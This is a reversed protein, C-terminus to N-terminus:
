IRALEANIAQEVFLFSQELKEFIEPAHGINTRCASEFEAALAALAVAGVNLSAGKLTHAIRRAEALNNGSLSSKMGALQDHAGKAFTALIQSFLARDNSLTCLLEGTDLVNAPSAPATGRATQKLMPALASLVNERRVPKVLIRNIGSVLCNAHESKENSATVAVLPVQHNLVPSTPDRIIKAASLGDMVPMHLDLFVCDFNERCLKEVAEKGNVACDVFIGLSELTKRIVLLNIENDEAVLIRVSKSGNGFFARGNEASSAKELAPAAALADSAIEATVPLTLTFYFDSGKGPTSTVGISGGLLEVLKKSIALGLGTGGYKRDITNDIQSFRRFLRPLDEAAIGIGTDVVNTTLTVASASRATCRVNIAVQGAETFKLANGGLNLLVQRLRMADGILLGPLDPDIHASIAINKEKAKVSLIDLAEMVIKRYDLPREELTMKGAEIKSFDLVGEIISLLSEAAVGVIQAFNRQEESLETNLLLEIMGIIGNLPTRIEHSMTALFQGKAVSGLEAKVALNNAREIATQLDATARVCESVDKIVHITGIRVDTANHWPSTTIELFENKEKDDLQFRATKGDRMTRCHPCSLIPGTTHHMIEYCKRGVIEQKTKGLADYYAMNCKVIRFQRDQLSIRDTLSDFIAEWERPSQNINTNIDS